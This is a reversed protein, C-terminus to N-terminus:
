FQNFFNGIGYSTQQTYITATRENAMEVLTRRLVLRKQQDYSPYIRQINEYDGRDELIKIATGWAILQWWQLLQATDTDNVFGVPINIANPPSPLVVDNTGGDTPPNNSSGLIAAIPNIFAQLTVLYARDPVPRLYLTDAYFLMSVPRNPVYPVVQANIAQGSPIPNNFLISVVGTIYNITSAAQILLGSLAGTAATIPVDVATTVNGANDQTSIVVNNQLVPSNSLTFVYPGQTGNGYAVGNEALGLRPYLMYFNDQSQTFFSQYGGVYVPPEITIISSTPLKYSDRYPETTFSWNSLCNKLRLEQPFDYLYYTNIYQIIQNDTIQSQSPSKTVRRVKSIIDGLTNPLGPPATPM